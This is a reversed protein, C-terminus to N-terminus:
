ELIRGGFFVITELSGYNRTATKGVKCLRNKKARFSLNQGFENLFLSNCLWFKHKLGCWTKNCTHNKYTRILQLLPSTSLALYYQIFCRYADIISIDASDIRFCFWALKPIFVCLVSISFCCFLWELRHNPTLNQWLTM